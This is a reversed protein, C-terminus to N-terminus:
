HSRHTSYATYRPTPRRSQKARESARLEMRQSIHRKCACGRTKGGEGKREDGKEEMGGVERNVVGAYLRVRRTRERENASHVTGECGERTLPGVCVEAFGEIYTPGICTYTNVTYM